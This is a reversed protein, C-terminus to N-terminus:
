EVVRRLMFLNPNKIYNTERYDDWKASIVKGNIKKNATALFTILEIVKDPKDGKVWRQRAMDTDIAGPSVANITIDFFCLEKSMAETFGAVAFKSTTYSSFGPGIDNGGVGGGCFTVIRGYNQARMIPIAEHVCNVTGILNVDIADKWEVLSNDELHGHPGLIGACNVLVDIRGFRKMVAGFLKKVHDPCRVDCFVAFCGTATVVNDIEDKTKACIAVRYGLETFKIAAAKGIGKSGGTILVVKDMQKM